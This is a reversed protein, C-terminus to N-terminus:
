FRVQEQAPLQDANEWEDASSSGSDQLDAISDSGEVQRTNSAHCDGCDLLQIM